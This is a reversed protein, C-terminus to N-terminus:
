FCTHAQPPCIGGDAPSLQLIFQECRKFKRGHSHTELELSYHFKSKAKVFMISSRGHALCQSSRAEQLGQFLLHASSERLQAQSPWCKGATVWFRLSPPQFPHGAGTISASFQLLAQIEPQLAWHNEQTNKPAEPNQFPAAPAVRATPRTIRNQIRRSAIQCINGNSFSPQFSNELSAEWGSTRLLM